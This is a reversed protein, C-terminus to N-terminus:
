FPVTVLPVGSDLSGLMVICIHMSQQVDFKKM